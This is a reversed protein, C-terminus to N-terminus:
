EGVRGYKWREYRQMFLWALLEMKLREVEEPTSAESKGITQMLMGVILRNLLEQKKAPSVPIRGDLIGHCTHSLWGILGDHPKRAGAGPMGPLTIRLHAGVVTAPDETCGWVDCPRGQASRRYALDVAREPEGISLTAKCIPPGARRGRTKPLM